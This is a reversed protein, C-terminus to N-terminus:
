YAEHPEGTMRTLELTGPNVMKKFEDDPDLIWACGGSMGAGFNGGTKGLVAIRGGTMYECGHEGIGEVVAWAGSNRVCFREGAIGRVLALGNIAGILCANGAVINDEAVFGKAMASRPPYLALTGGSLGKGFYDQSDGELELFLGKVSFAGFSQGSTGELKVHCTGPQLSNGWRRYLEGSLLTGTSRHMNILDNFKISVREGKKFCTAAEEVLQRDLVKSLDIALHKLNEQPWMKHREVKGIKGADPLQHAPMIIPLYNLCANNEHINPDVRLCESCGILEDMTRFGLNAMLQRAEEAVLM